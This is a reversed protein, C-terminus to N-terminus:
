SNKTEPYAMKYLDQVEKKAHTHNPHTPNRYPHSADGQIARAKTLAQEPTMGTFEGAGQGLFTDEKFYKAANALMKLVVPNSGMGSQILADRDAQNPVLERFAVNAKKVQSDYGAGWEAKLADIGQKSEAATQTQMATMKESINTHYAAYIKEFQWPLVGAALASEKLKGMFNADLSPEDVGDPLKFKYDDLKEPMGLKKFINIYDDQTAHKPDPISIKDKGIMKQASIYSKALSTVDKITSMSSDNKIDDPFSSVISDWTPAAAGAAPAGAGAGADLVDQLFHKRFLSM